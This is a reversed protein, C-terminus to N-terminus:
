KFKDFVPHRFHERCHDYIVKLASTQIVEEELLQTQFQRLLLQKRKVERTIQKENGGGFDGSSNKLSEIRNMTLEICDKIAKSRGAHNVLMKNTLEECKSPYDVKNQFSATPLETNLQHRVQDDAKRWIDLIKASQLIDDCPLSGHSM